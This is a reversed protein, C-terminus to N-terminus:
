RLLPLFLALSTKHVPSSLASYTVVVLMCDWNGVVLYINLIDPSSMLTLNCVDVAVSWAAAHVLWDQESM